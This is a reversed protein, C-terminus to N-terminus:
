IRVKGNIKGTKGESELKIEIQLDGTTLNNVPIKFGNCTSTSVSEEINAEESYVDIGNKTINLKCNGASLFQNINVRIILEGESVDAYSIVGSLNEAENPNNGTYQPVDKKTEEKKESETASMDINKSEEQKSVGSDTRSEEKNKEGFFNNNVLVVVVVAAVMLVFLFAWGIWRKNRRRKAMM